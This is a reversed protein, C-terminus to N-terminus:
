HGDILSLPPIRNLVPFGTLAQLQKRRRISSDSVELLVALGTGLAIGGVLGGLAFVIPHLNNPSSPTFPRDIVKVREAEEFLGLSGTVEAMESRHLLENYLTRKVSLDRELLNLQREQEGNSRTKQELNYIMEKLRGTEEILSEVESKALQLNSLQSVLLPQTVAENGSIAKNSAIDWLKEVDIKESEVSLVLRRQQELRDISRTLGLVQSHNNTYRSKLLALESRLNVIREEIKGVVPNTQSLQIKLSGTSKIAGALEAEKEGLLQKLKTLQSINSAHLEPLESANDNKFKALAVESKDLEIRKKQLHEELFRSSDRMSSREPALLQEVFHHSVTELIEKMGDPSTANLRIRILDKGAVEIALNNSLNKIVQDRTSDNSEEDILNLEMAVETLIHRSHLLTKLAAMREKLMASVAFDELFPNMKATEQILMSTHSTYRKGSTTAVAFGIIPMLIIPIFITYRRQWAGSAIRYLQYSVDSM